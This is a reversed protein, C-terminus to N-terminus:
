HPPPPTPRSDTPANPPPPRAQARSRPHAPAQPPPAVPATRLPAPSFPTCQPLLTRTLPALLPLVVHFFRAAARHANGSVRAPEIMGVPAAVDHALPREGPRHGCPRLAHWQEPLM